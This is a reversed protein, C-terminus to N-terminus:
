KARKATFEVPEGRQGQRKMKIEDGAVKGTYTQKITNGNREMTVVFSIEDGSVKGDSIARPEGQGGSVTGTLAAGDAKLDFTMERAQGNRGPVQATWKGTVDAALAAGAFLATSTLLLILKKGMSRAYEREPGEPAPWGAAGAVYGWSPFRPIPSERKFTRGFRPKM